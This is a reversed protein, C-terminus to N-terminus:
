VKIFCNKYFIENILSINFKIIFLCKFVYQALFLNKIHAYMFYKEM